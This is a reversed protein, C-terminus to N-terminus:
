QRGGFWRRLGQFYRAEVGHDRPTLDSLHENRVLGLGSENEFQILQERVKDLLGLLAIEVAVVSQRIEPYAREFVARYNWRTKEAIEGARREADEAQTILGRLNREIVVREQRKTAAEDDRGEAVSEDIQRDLLRAKAAVRIQFEAHSERLTRAKTVLRIREENLPANLTNLAGSLKDDLADGLGELVFEVDESSIPQEALEETANMAKTM